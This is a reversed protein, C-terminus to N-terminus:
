DDDIEEGLWDAIKERCIWGYDEPEPCPCEVPCYQCADEGFKLLFMEALSKDSAARINDGNTM